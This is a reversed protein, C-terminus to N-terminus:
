KEGGNEEKGAVMILHSQRNWGGASLLVAWGKSLGDWAGFQLQRKAIATM